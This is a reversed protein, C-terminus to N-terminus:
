HISKLFRDLRWNWFALPSSESSFFVVEARGVLNKREVMGVGSGFRSDLSNDRNDGLFFYHGEPVVFPATNDSGARTSDNADLITYAKGSPLTEQYMKKRCLGKFEVPDNICIPPRGEPGQPEKVEDFNRLPKQSLPEGNLWVVGQKMQVTDGPLGVVRKIYDISDDKPYRFVIVDGREPESGFIRGEFLPLSFPFSYQSYGYAYKSVFLYDGILLTPKMSGSPISFPQFLFSRFAMAILIAYVITKINDWFSSHANTKEKSM